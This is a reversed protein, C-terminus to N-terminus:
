LLQQDSGAVGKYSQVSPGNGLTHMSHLLTDDPDCESKTRELVLDSMPVQGSWTSLHVKRQTKFSGAKNYQDLNYSYNSESSADTEPQIYMGGLNTVVLRPKSPTVSFSLVCAASITNDTSYDNSTQM